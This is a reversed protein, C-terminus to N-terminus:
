VRHGARGAIRTSAPPAHARARRRGDSRGDGIDSIVLDFPTAEALELAEKASGARRVRYGLQEVMQETVKAVEPNDEVLLASGGELKELAAKGENQAPKPAVGGRPLYLTVCTGRGLESTVAVTGGSQHAFGYVQSLGLDSGKSPGK